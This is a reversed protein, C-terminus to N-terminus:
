GEVKLRLVEVCWGRQDIRVMLVVGITSSASQLHRQGANAEGCPSRDREITWRAGRARLRGEGVGRRVAGHFGWNRQELVAARGCDWWSMESEIEWGGEVRGGVM